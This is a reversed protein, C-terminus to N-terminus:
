AADGILDAVVPPLGDLRGEIRSGRAASPQDAGGAILLVDGAMLTMFRSLTAILEDIGLYLDQLTWRDREKGDVLCTVAADRNWREIPVFRGLPLFGDRCKQRIAPRYYGAGVESLDLALAAAVPRSDAGGFLLAVSSAVAVQDLQEPVPVAGGDLRVCTRPKIFVVPAVPAAAYRPEAFAHSLAEREQHSNLAIGYITGAIM